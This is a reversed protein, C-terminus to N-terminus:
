LFSFLVHKMIDNIDDSPEFPKKGSLFYSGPLSLFMKGLVFTLTGQAQM